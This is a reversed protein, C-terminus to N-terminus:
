FSLHNVFVSRSRSQAPLAPASNHARSRSIAAFLQCPLRSGSRYAGRLAARRPGSPADPGVAPAPSPAAAAAMQRPRAPAPLCGRLGRAPAPAPAASAAARAWCDPRPRGSHRRRPGHVFLLVGRGFRGAAAAGRM